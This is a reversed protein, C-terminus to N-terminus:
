SNPLNTADFNHTCPGSVKKPPVSLSNLSFRFMKKFNSEVWFNKLGHVWFIRVCEPNRYKKKLQFFKKVRNQDGLTLRTREFATQQCFILRGFFTGSECNEFIKPTPNKQVALIHKDKKPFYPLSRGGMVQGLIGEVGKAVCTRFRRSM